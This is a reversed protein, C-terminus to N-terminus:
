EIVEDVMNVIFGNFRLRNLFVNTYSENLNHTKIFRQTQISGGNEKQYDLMTRFLGFEADDLNVNYSDAVVTRTGDNEERFKPNSALVVQLDTMDKLQISKNFWETGDNIKEYFRIYPSDKGLTETETLCGSRCPDSYRCTNCVDPLINDLDMRNVISEISEDRINGYKEGSHTCYRVQGDPGIGVSKTAASCAVDILHSYKNIDEVVCFPFSRLIRTYIGKDSLYMVSDLVNVLQDPSLMMDIHEKSSASIPTICFQEFGYKDILFEATPLVDDANQKTVVMNPALDFGEEKAVVINRLVADYAKTNQVVEAFKKRSKNHMSFLIDKVGKKRIDKLVDRKALSLNTTLSMRVDYENLADIVKLVRQPKLFLEGGTLNAYFFDNEGIKKAVEVVADDGPDVISDRNAGSELNGCFTCNYNCGEFVEFLAILPKTIM